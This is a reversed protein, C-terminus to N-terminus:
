WVSIAHEPTLVSTWALAVPAAFGGARRADVHVGLLVQLARAQWEQDHPGLRMCARAAEANGELPCVPEALRGVANAGAMTSRRDLLAGSTHALRSFASRVLEDALDRYVPQSRWPDGDLLAQAVLMADTLLAPGHPRSTLVHAVGAGQSYVRPVMAELAAIAERALDGDDRYQAVALLARCARATADVITIAPGDAWPRWGTSVPGFATRLGDVATQLAARWAPRPDCEVARVLLRVWDAQTELRAVPDGVSTASVGRCLLIGRSPNWRPSSLLRDITETAAATLTPDLDSAAGALAALAPSLDPQGANGFTGSAPDVSAAVQAWIEAVADAPDIRVTSTAGVAAARAPRAWDAERFRRAALNLWAALGAGPLGGGLVHGEPTLALLTPWADAGYRDAIDPRWDADVRVAVFQTTIAEIVDASALTETVFRRSSASWATDLLLLVPRRTQQARLFSPTAWPLWDISPM